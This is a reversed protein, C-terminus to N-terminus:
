KKTACIVMSLSKMDEGYGQYKLALHSKIHNYYKDDIKRVPKIKVNEWGESELIKKYDEIHVRNHFSKTKLVDYLSESYRYINLPDMDRLPQGHTQLDIETILKGEPKVVESLQSITKKVDDFHEFAAQSFVIDISDKDFVSLDFDDNFKFDINEFIMDLEKEVNSSTSSKKILKKYLKDPAKEVLNYVDIAKYNEAGKLLLLVGTGLDNGPGLELINKGELTFNQGEYKKLQNLWSDVVKIDYQISQDMNEISFPAPSTYGQSFHKIRKLILFVIGLLFCFYNNIMEVKIKEVKEM